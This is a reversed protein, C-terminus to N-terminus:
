QSVTYVTAGDGRKNKLNFIPEIDLLSLRQKLDKNKRKEVVIVYDYNKYGDIDMSRSLIATSQDINFYYQIFEDDTLIQSNEPLNNSAWIAVDKIYLKSNSKTMADVLSVLLIIGAIILISKNKFSWAKELTHTLRPLMLFLLSILAMMTYRKSIFYETFMFALLILINLALFYGIVGRYPTPQLTHKQWQSYLYLGIYGISLAKTLKYILMIIMGSSLILGSYPASYKNLIQSDIIDLRSNFKSLLLDLNIYNSSSSIKRFATSLDSQGLTIFSVILLSIIVLFYTHLGHKFVFRPPQTAFLYLPLALLILVGEVRFLIAAIMALQWLIAEKFRPKDIYLMFRYLALSCFAWYGIDRIIFDRYEHLTQFCIFLLAAIAVQQTNSLIKHSILVLVDTLLVFLFTNLINASLELPLLTLKHIYAIIITFFPWGFNSHQSTGILGDTLFAKAMGMYLIADRNIIDNSYFAFISLLLSTLATIIRINNINSQPQIMINM